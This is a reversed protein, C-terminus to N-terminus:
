GTKPLGVSRCRGGVLEDRIAAADSDDKRSGAPGTMAVYAKGRMVADVLAAIIKGASIRIFRDPAVAEHESSADGITQAPKSEM